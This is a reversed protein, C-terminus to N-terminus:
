AVQLLAAYAAAGLAFAWFRSRRREPLEEKLVNLVVGGALFALITVLATEPLEVIQSALWGLLVAGALVWRGVRTYADKHHERLGYDNVVFHLAMAVVFLTLTRAGANAEDDLAYGILGTYFAFSAVSVVFATPGTADNGERERREGRSRATVRELGYFLALGALALLYAHDDLRAFFGQASEGLREQAAALEPLLRAFVYAVSIGGALSLWRSRPVGELFRLKGAFLHVAGLLLAALAPAITM